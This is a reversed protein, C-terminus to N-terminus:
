RKQKAKSGEGSYRQQIQDAVQQERMKKRTEAWSSGVLNDAQLSNVSSKLKLEEVPACRYSKLLFDSNFRLLKEAEAIRGADRLATARKNTENAVQIMCTAYVESNLEQQAIDQKDTFKVQVASTLKDVTETTMNMYEVAVEAVPMSSDIDGFPVEVEVVFYREQRSYLQGLDITVNQGTIDAKSNLVKVPRIGEAIKAKVKIQQAVVGLVDDFENQFVQVLNQAEEIFVHNGSSALALQSMLDENYGLGLGMTSVSIGEKILSEGLQTLEAPSSPGVNALGDSLLIVRNVMKEDLFKRLEAAGKSVGAFLATNGGASIGRIKTRIASRDSAKTAPVLVEVSSDYTVISIIDDDGLRDLAGLAANRAQRIKEGQMSGSKDIVIAVNVPQREAQNPMEFGTLAIRLHNAQKKDKTVYMTPNAMAVELQVQKAATRQGPSALLMTLLALLMPPLRLLTM